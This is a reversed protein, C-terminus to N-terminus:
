NAAQRSAANRRKRIVCYGLGGLVAFLIFGDVVVILIIMWKKLRSNKGHEDTTGKRVKAMYIARRGGEGEVKKIGRAMRYLSCQGKRSDEDAVAYQTAACTCDDLCLDVCEKKTVNAQYVGGNLVSAVGELEMMETGRGGCLDDLDGKINFHSCGSSTCIGHPECALPLDCTSNIAQFSAEFKRKETSYYYLGLNGTSGGLTLFRPPDPGISAVRGVKQRGNFIVLGNSTLQLHTINQDGAPRLEWYSYKWKDVNLYLAIKNYQIEFSYSMTSNKPFSTLRTQSSLSQGWLMVDTPFNFTQWKIFNGADVLVLNGTRLLYLREVGQGSTGSRWGVREKQGKLRLDGDKTLELVCKETAYFRSLHGSSWVRVDALFVDLSCSYKQDVAEVNIAARFMPPMQEAEILFARGTFGKTYETPIALTVQYGIQIESDSIAQALFHLQLIFVFYFKMEPMFDIPLCHSITCDQIRNWPFPQASIINWFAYTVANMQM